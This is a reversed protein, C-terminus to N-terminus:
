WYIEAYLSCVKSFKKTLSSIKELEEKIPDYGLKEINTTDMGVKYFTGVKGVISANGENSKALANDIITKVQDNAEERLITFAGWRVQDDPIPNNKVWNGVAYNYFNEQPAVTTDINDLDFGVIKKEEMTNCASLTILIISITMISLWKLKM